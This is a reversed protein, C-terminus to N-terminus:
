LQPKDRMAYLVADTMAVYDRARDVGIDDRTSHATLNRLDRLGEIAKLTEPSILNAESARVAMQYASRWQGDERGASELLERLRQEIRVFAERVASSPSIVVLPALEDALSVPGDRPEVAAVEPIQRVEERVEVAKRDFEAEVPGAKLRLLRQSVAEALPKRLLYVLAFVAIPWAASQILSAVFSM